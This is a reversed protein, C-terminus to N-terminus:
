HDRSLSDKRGHHVTPVLGVNQRQPGLLFPARRSSFHVLLSALLDVEKLYVVHIRAM